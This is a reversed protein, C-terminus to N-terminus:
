GSVILRTAPPAADMKLAAAAAAAAAAMKTAQIIEAENLACKVQCVTRSYFTQFLILIKKKKM